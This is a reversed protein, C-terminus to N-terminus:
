TRTSQSPHQSFWEVVELISEVQIAGLRLAREGDVYAIEFDVDVDGDNGNYHDATPEIARSNGHEM